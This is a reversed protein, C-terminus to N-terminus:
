YRYPGHIVLHHERRTVVTDTLNRGLTHLTWAFLVGGSFLFLVGLWRYLIPITIYACTLWGPAVLYALLSLLSALGLLRLAIFLFLGEQRRDLKEGTISKIRHYLGISGFVLLWASLLIRFTNEQPM